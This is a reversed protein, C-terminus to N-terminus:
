SELGEEVRSRLWWEKLGRLDCGRLGEAEGEPLFWRKGECDRAYANLSGGDWRNTTVSRFLAVTGIAPMFAQPEVFVSLMVKKSTSSDVIRLERKYHKGPRIGPCLVLNPTVSYVVALVDLVKNRTANPGTLHSLPTIKLPRTIPLLPKPLHPPPISKHLLDRATPRTNYVSHDNPSTQSKSLQPPKPPSSSINPNLQQFPTQVDELKRKRGNKSNNSPSATIASPDENHRQKDYWPILDVADSDSVLSSAPADEVDPSVPSVDLDKKSTSELTVGRQATNQPKYEEHIEYAKDTTIEKPPRGDHAIPVLDSIQLYRNWKAVFRSVSPKIYTCYTAM